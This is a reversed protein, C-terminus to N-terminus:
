PTAEQAIHEAIREVVREPKVAGCMFMAILFARRSTGFEAREVREVRAAMGIKRVRAAEAAASALSTHERGWPMGHRAGDIVVRFTTANVSARKETKVVAGRAVPANRKEPPSNM